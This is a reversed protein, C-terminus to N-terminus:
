PPHPPPPVTPPQPPKPPATPTSTPPSPTGGAVKRVEYLAQSAPDVARCGDDLINISFGSIAGTDGRQIRAIQLAGQWTDADVHLSEKQTNGLSTVEVFWRM